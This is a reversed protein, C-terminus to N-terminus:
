KRMRKIKDVVEPSLCSEANLNTCDRHRIRKNKFKTLNIKVSKDGEDWNEDIFTLAERITPYWSGYGGFENRITVVFVKDTPM